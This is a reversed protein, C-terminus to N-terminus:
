RKPDTWWGVFAVGSIIVAMFITVALLETSMM